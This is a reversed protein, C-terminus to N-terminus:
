CKLILVLSLTILVNIHHKVADPLKTMTRVEHKFQYNEKIGEGRIYFPIRIHLDEYEGHVTGSGGHDSTIM